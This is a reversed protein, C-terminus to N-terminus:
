QINVYCHLVILSPSTSSSYMVNLLILSSLLSRIDIYPDATNDLQSSGLVGIQCDVSKNGQDTTRRWFICCVM